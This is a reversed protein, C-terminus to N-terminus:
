APVTDNQLTVDVIPWGKMLAVKSLDTNAGVVHPFGVAELMARDSIDDGFAHCDSAMCNHHQLFQTIAVAKGQGITQPDSIEGSYFSRASNMEMQTSLIHKVNLHNAIPQLLGPFSGSVFVPAIGNESLARMEQVVEDFFLPKPNSLMRTAWTEAAVTLDMASVGSFCRYYARNLEERSKGAKRMDSFHGEFEELKKSDGFVDLCWFRYFSFMSKIRILTDDVDFFAYAETKM